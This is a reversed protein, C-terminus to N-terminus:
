EFWIARCLFRHVRCYPWRSWSSSFAFDSACLELASRALHTPACRCPGRIALVIAGSFSCEISFVTNEKFLGSWHACIGAVKVILDSDYRISNCIGM